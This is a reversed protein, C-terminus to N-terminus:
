RVGEWKFGNLYQEVLKLGNAFSVGRADMRGQVGQTDRNLSAVLVSADYLGTLKRYASMCVVARMVMGARDIFSESCEAATMKSTGQVGFSENRFSRGFLSAFRLAGLKPADYAEYRVHIYGTTTEGAFVHSDLQCDTRELDFAKFDRDRGRGWCRALADDPVPVSYGGQQQSKLPTALFKKAVQEQHLLLQRAVEAFAPKTLPTAAAGRQMLAQAFEAPVLFSLQEGDIRKSVNVGVVRGSDDLVPGGSMGANITGGFFIRPYFSREVLGNYSGETVAFGIDQPNGLSYIREGRALPADAPRFGLAAHDTVGPQARLLALDHQVDFALLQLPAEKGDVAVYVGRYREPELALQSAVHFNTVILGDVSVFFGSGVSAQTESHRVLTRIQVLKDRAGEYARQADHSIPTTPAIPQVHTNSQAQAANARVLSLVLGCAGLWCFPFNM